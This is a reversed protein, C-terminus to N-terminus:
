KGHCNKYKKGSGCPCADNRGIKEEVKRPQVKEVPEQNAQQSARRQNEEEEKQQDINTQVEQNVQTRVERAQRVEEEQQIPIMGRFLFSSVERSIESNLNRFLKLAEIKYVVLPDKRM